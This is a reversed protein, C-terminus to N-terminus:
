APDRTIAPQITCGGALLRDEEGSPWYLKADFRAEKPNAFAGLAESKEDTIVIEVTGTVGGLEIGDDAETSAQLLVEESTPTKRVQMRMTCGTLDHAPGAQFEGNADLIPVDDVDVLITCYTFSLRFTAGQEVTIDMPIAAM